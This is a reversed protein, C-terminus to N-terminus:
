AGPAAGDLWRLDFQELSDLVAHANAQPEPVYTAQRLQV